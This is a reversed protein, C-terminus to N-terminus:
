FNFRLASTRIYKRKRPSFSFTVTYKTHQCTHPSIIFGAWFDIGEVKVLYLWFTAKELPEWSTELPPLASRILNPACASWVEELSCCSRMLMATYSACMKYTSCYKSSPMVFPQFIRMPFTFSRWHVSGGIGVVRDVVLLLSTAQSWLWWIVSAMTAM